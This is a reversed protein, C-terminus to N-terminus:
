ALRHIDDERVRLSQSVGFGIRSGVDITEVRRRFEYHKGANGEM